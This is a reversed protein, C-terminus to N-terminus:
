HMVHLLRAKHWALEYKWDNRCVTAARLSVMRVIDGRCCLRGCCSTGVSVIVIM